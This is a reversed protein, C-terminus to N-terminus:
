LAGVDVLDVQLDAARAESFAWWRGVRARRRVRPDVGETALVQAYITKASARQDQLDLTHALYLRVEARRARDELRELAGRFAGEARRPRGARMALLGALVHLAPDGPYLALAHEIQILLRKPSEGEVSQRCADRYLGFARGHPTREWGPTPHFPKQRRDPAGGVSPARAGLRFPVMWSRAAPSDGAGVWVRRHEPEFVVSQVTQVSAVSGGALRREGGESARVDGLAEAMDVVGACGAARVLEELRRRRRGGDHPGEAVGDFEAAALSEGRFAGAYGLVSQDPALRELYEDGPMTEYIACAGSDGETLVYSWGGVPAYERLIDVAESISRARRIVHEAAVGVPTAEVDVRGVLHPHAAITLGAANMAALGAGVVGAPGVALYDLGDEPHYCHVTTTREWHGIGRADLNHAHLTTEGAPPRAVASVARSIPAALRRPLAGPGAVQRISAALWAFAEPAAWTEVLTEATLPIQEAFAEIIPGCSRRYGDAIPDTSCRRTAWDVLDGLQGASLRRLERALHTNLFALPGDGVLAGTKRGMQRAMETPAGSANAFHIWGSPASVRGPASESEEDVECSSEGDDGEEWVAVAPEVGVQTISEAM